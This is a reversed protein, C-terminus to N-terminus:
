APFVQERVRAVEAESLWRLLGSQMAWAFRRAKRREHEQLATESTLCFVPRGEIRALHQRYAAAVTLRNSVLIADVFAIKLLDALARTSDDVVGTMVEPDEAAYSNFEFPTQETIGGAGRMCIWELTALTTGASDLFVAAAQQKVGITDGISFKLPQFHLDRFQEIFPAWRSFARAPLAEWAVVRESGLDGSACKPRLPWRLLGRLRFFAAVGFALPGPILAAMSRRMTKFPITTLEETYYREAM